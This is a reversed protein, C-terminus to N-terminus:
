FYGGDKNDEEDNDDTEASVFEGSDQLSAIFDDTQQTFSSIMAAKPSSVSVDFGLESAAEAIQKKTMSKLESESPITIEEYEEEAEPEEVVPSGNADWGEPTEEIVKVKDTKLVTANEPSVQGDSIEPLSPTSSTDEEAVRLDPVEDDIEMEAAVKMQEDIVNAVEQEFEDTGKADEPIDIDLELQNETVTEEEWEKFSKKTEEVKQVFDEDDSIKEVGPMEEITPAPNLARAMEFARSKPKNLPAPAINDKQVSVADKSEQLLRDVEAQEEPTLTREEQGEALGVQGDGDLDMSIGHSKLVAEMQALKDQTTKRLQREDALKQNFANERQALEIQKQEAEQVTIEQLRKQEREMMTRYDITAKNVEDRLMVLAELDTSKVLGAKLQQELLVAIVQLSNPSIGAQYTQIRERIKQSESKETTVESAFTPEEAM